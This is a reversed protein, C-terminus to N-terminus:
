YCNYIIPPTIKQYNKKKRADIIVKEIEKNKFSNNRKKIYKKMEENKLTELMNKYFSSEFVGMCIDYINDIICKIYESIESDDLTYLQNMIYEEIRWSYTYYKFKNIDVNIIEKNDELRKNLEKIINIMSYGASSRMLSGSRLYYEYYPKNIYKITKAKLMFLPNLSLDEYKDEVYELKLSDLISKKMIKNCTSPMITSYL